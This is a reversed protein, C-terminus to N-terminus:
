LIVREDGERRTVHERDLYELLPIAYKRSLGTIEKFAAVNLRNSRSKYKVALERLRALASRHFVLDEALKVLEGEKLLLQLIKQARARDLRLGALVERASPVALGAQAFAKVIQERAASEEPNLRVERGLLRM